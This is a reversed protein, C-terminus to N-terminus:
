ILHLDFVFPKFIKTCFMNRIQYLSTPIPDTQWSFLHSDSSVYPGSPVNLFYLVSSFFKTLSKLFPGPFPGSTKTLSKIFVMDIRISTFSHLFFFFYIFFFFVSLHPLLQLLPCTSLIHLMLTFFCLMWFGMIDTGVTLDTPLFKLFLYFNARSKQTMHGSPISFINYHSFFLQVNILNRFLLCM